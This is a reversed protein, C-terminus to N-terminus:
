DNVFALSHHVFAADCPLSIAISKSLRTSSTTTTRGEMKDLRKLNAIAEEMGQAAAKTWWERAKTFSQDVGTGNAYDVGVNLQAKAYGQDASLQYYKFALTDSQNVGRGTAYMNGLNFQAVHHGQDASLKYLVCARKDDQPVGIGKDYRNGLMAQAWPKNKQTWKRLRRIEEASGAPVNRARCMPCSNKTEDSLNSADLDLGCMMHMCKGCGTCMTFTSVDLMSVNEQCICCVDSHYVVQPTPSTSSTATEEHDTVNKENLTPNAGDEQKKQKQNNNNQM